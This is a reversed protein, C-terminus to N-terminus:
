CSPLGYAKGGVACKRVRGNQLYSVSVTSTDGTFVKLSGGQNFSGRVPDVSILDNGTYSFQIRKNKKSSTFFPWSSIASNDCSKPPDDWAGVVVCWDGGGGLIHVYALKNQMVAFSKAQTMTWQLEDAVKLLRRAEIQGKFSPAAAAVLVALVAIAIILEILTFGKSIRAMRAM